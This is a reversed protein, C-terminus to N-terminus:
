AQHIPRDEVRLGAAAVTESGRVVRMWIFVVQLLWLPCAWGWPTSGSPNVRETSLRRRCLGVSGGASRRRPRQGIRTGRRRHGTIYRHDAGKLLLLAASALTEHTPSGAESFTHSETVKPCSTLYGPQGNNVGDQAAHPMVGSRGDTTRKPWPQSRIAYPNSRRRLMRQNHPETSSVSPLPDECQPGKHLSPKVILRSPEDSTIPPLGTAAM